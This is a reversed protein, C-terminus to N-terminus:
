HWGLGKRSVWVIKLATQGGGTENDREDNEISKSNIKNKSFSGGTINLILIGECDFKKIEEIWFRIKKAVCVKIEILSSEYSM